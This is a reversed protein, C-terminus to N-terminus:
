RSKEVKAYSVFKLITLLPQLALQLVKSVFDTWRQSELAM